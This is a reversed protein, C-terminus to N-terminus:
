FGRVLYTKEGIHMTSVTRDGNLYLVIKEKKDNIFEWQFREEQQGAQKDEKESVRRVPYKWTKDERAGDDFQVISRVVVFYEKIIKVKKNPDAALGATDTVVLATDVVTSDAPATEDTAKDKKKKKADKDEITIVELFSISTSDAMRLREQVAQDNHIRLFPYIKKGWISDPSPFVLEGRDTFYAKEQDKLKTSIAAQYFIIEEESPSRKFILAEVMNYKNLIVKLHGQLRADRANMLLLKYGYDAPQMNNISYVGEIGEGKVYLNNQTVGFSYDGPSLEEQTQGKIEKMAPKFDYGILENVAFFRRDSLYSFQAHALNTFLAFCLLIRIKM